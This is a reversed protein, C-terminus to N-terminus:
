CADYCRATLRASVAEDFHSLVFAQAALGMDKRLAPDSTLRCIAEALAVPDGPPVLVGTKGDAIAEPIANVNTAICAKGLAMAELLAGPLGESLSPHVFLDASRMLRLLDLRERGVQSPTMIRIMDQLGSAQITSEIERRQVGNGVWVFFSTREQLSILKIAELLVFYGKRPIMQGLSLVFLRDPPLGYLRCLSSRELDLSLVDSIEQVDIGTYALPVSALYKRPLFQQLSRLM